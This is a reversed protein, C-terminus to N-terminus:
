QKKRPSIIKLIEEVSTVIAVQGKWEDHWDKEDPTLQMAQRTGRAADPNKLEFLYNRNWAGVCIDPFGNGVNSLDAVTVGVSRLARVIEAQNIDSRKRYRPM